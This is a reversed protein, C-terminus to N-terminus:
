PNLGSPSPNTFSPHFYPLHYDARSPARVSLYTIEVLYPDSDLSNHGIYILELGIRLGRLIVIDPFQLQTDVSIFLPPSIPDRGGM